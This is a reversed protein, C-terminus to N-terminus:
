HTVGKESMWATSRIASSRGEIGSELERVADAYKWVDDTDDARAIAENWVVQADEYSRIPQILNLGGTAIVEIFKYVVFAGAIGFVIGKVLNSKTFNNPKWLRLISNM